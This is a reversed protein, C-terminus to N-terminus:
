QIDGKKVEDEKESITKEITATWTLKRIISDRKYFFQLNKRDYDHSINTRETKNNWYQNYKSKDDM